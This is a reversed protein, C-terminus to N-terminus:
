LPVIFAKRCDYKQIGAALPTARFAAYEDPAITALLRRLAQVEEARQSLPAPRPALRSRLALVLARGPGARPLRAGLDLSLSVVGLITAVNSLRSLLADDLAPLSFAGGGARPRSPPASAAM